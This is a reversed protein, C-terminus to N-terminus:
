IAYQSWHYSDSCVEPSPSPCPSHCAANCSTVFSDSMIYLSFLLLYDCSHSRMMNPLNTNMPTHNYLPLASLSQTVSCRLASSCRLARGCGRGKVQCIYGWICVVDGLSGKCSHVAFHRWAPWLSHLAADWFGRYSVAPAWITGKPNKRAVQFTIWHRSSKCFNQVHIFM